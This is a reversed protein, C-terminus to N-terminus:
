TLSFRIPVHVISDIPLGAMRAPRFRWGAVARRAAEDLSIVGSSEKILVQAARGRRDVAVELLVTGEQKSRRAEAPYAPPPNLDYAPKAAVVGASNAGKASHDSTPPAASDRSTTGNQNALPETPAPSPLPTVSPLPMAPEAPIAVPKPRELSPQRSVAHAPAWMMEVEVYHQTGAMGFRAAEVGLVSWSFIAIAHVSISLLFPLGKSGQEFRKWDSLRFAPRSSATRPTDRANPAELTQIV